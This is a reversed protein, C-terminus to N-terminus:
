GSFLAPYADPQVGTGKGGSQPEFYHEFSSAGVVFSHTPGGHALYLRGAHVVALNLLGTNQGGNKNRLNREMLTHNLSDGVARMAATVSGPTQFYTQTLHSLLYKFEGPAFATTRSLCVYLIVQDGTRGRAARRPASTAMLGPLDNQEQDNRYHIPFLNLDFLAADTEALIPPSLRIIGSLAFYHGTPAIAVM